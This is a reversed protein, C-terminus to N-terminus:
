GVIVNTLNHNLIHKGKLYKEAATTLYSHKKQLKLINADQVVFEQM